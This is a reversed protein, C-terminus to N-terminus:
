NVEGRVILFHIHLSLNLILNLLHGSSSLIVADSISTAGRIDCVAVSLSCLSSATITIIIIIKGTGTRMHHCVLAFCTKVAQQVIYQLSCSLGLKSAIVFQM